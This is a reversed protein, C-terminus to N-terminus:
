SNLWDDLPKKYEELLEPDWPDMFDVFKKMLENSKSQVSPTLYNPVQSRIKKRVTEIKM